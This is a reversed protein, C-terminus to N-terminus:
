SANMGIKLAAAIVVPLIVIAVILLALLLALIGMVAIGAEAQAVAGAGFILVPIYLPLIIVGLLLGSRPLAVTLAAGIGGLLLLIPTGLSLTILLIGIAHQTLHLLAGMLAAILLIPIITILWRLSLKIFVLGALPYASLLCQELVGSLYDDRFLSELALLTALLAAVWVIGPAIQKLLVPDVSMALPFLLMVLVFFGIPHLWDHSNRWLALWEHKMLAANIKMLSLNSM